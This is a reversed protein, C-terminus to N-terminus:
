RFVVFFAVVAAIVAAGLAMALPSQRTDVDERVPITKPGELPAVLTILLMLGTVVCFTIMMRILFHIEFLAGEHNGLLYHLAGYVPASVLLAVVGASAPARRAVFGVLFAAVIGPSIYGQFEQIFNFVGKFRPHGLHPALLCGIVVFLLTM